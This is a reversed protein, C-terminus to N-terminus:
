RAHELVLCIRLSKRHLTEAPLKMGVRFGRDEDPSHPLFSSTWRDHEVCARARPARRQAPIASGRGVSGNSGDGIIRGREPREMAGGQGRGVLGRRGAIESCRMSCHSPRPLSMPPTSQERCSGDRALFLSPCEGEREGSTMAFSRLPPRPLTNAFNAWRSLKEQM